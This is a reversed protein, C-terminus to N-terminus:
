SGLYLLTSLTGGDANPTGQYKRLKGAQPHPSTNMIRPAEPARGDPVVTAFRAAPVTDGSAGTAAFISALLRASVV